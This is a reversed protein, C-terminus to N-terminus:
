AIKPLTIKRLMDHLPDGGPPKGPVPEGSLAWDVQELYRRASGFPVSSTSEHTGTAFHTPKSKPVRAANPQLDRQLERFFFEVEELKQNDKERSTRQAEGAGPAEEQKSTSAEELCERTRKVRLVLARQERLAGDLRAREEEFECELARMEDRQMYHSSVARGVLEQVQDKRLFMRDIREELAAVQTVAAHLSHELRGVTASSTASLPAATLSRELEAKFESVELRVAEPQKQLTQHSEQKIIQLQQETSTRLQEISTMTKADFAEMVRAEAASAHGQMEESVRGVCLKFVEEARLIRDTLMNSFKGELEDLQGQAVFSRDAGGTVRETVRTELERVSTDVFNRLDAMENQLTSEAATLKSRTADASTSASKALSEARQSVGELEARMNELEARMNESVRQASEGIATLVRSEAVRVNAEMEESCRTMFAKLFDKFNSTHAALMETFRAELGQLQVEAASSMEAVRSELEKIQAERAALIEAFRNELDEVRGSKVFDKDAEPSQAIAAISEQFKADFRSEFQQFRQEFLRQDAESSRSSAAICEQLESGIRADLEELRQELRSRGAELPRSSAAIGAQLKSDLKAELEQLRHDVLSKLGADPSQASAVTNGQLRADILAELEELRKDLVTKLGTQETRLSSQTSLLHAQSSDVNTRVEKTLSDLRKRLSEIDNGDPSEAPRLSESPKCASEVESPPSEPRDWAQVAEKAVEPTSQLNLSQKAGTAIAVEADTVVASVLRRASMAAVEKLSESGGSGRQVEGAEGGSDAAVSALLVLAIGDGQAASNRESPTTQEVGGRNVSADDIGSAVANSAIADSQESPQAEAIGGVHGETSCHPGQPREAYESLTTGSM